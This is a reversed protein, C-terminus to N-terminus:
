NGWTKLTETTRVTAKALALSRPSLFLPWRQSDGTYVGWAYSGDELGDLEASTESIEKVIASPSHLDGGRAVVLLYTHAGRSPQWRFTIRPARGHHHFTRGPAPSVLLDEPPESECFLARPESFDGLRRQADRAAIRWLLRGPARPVLLTHTAELEASLIPQLFAPERAVQVAYGTAGEVEKWSLRAILGPCFLREDALPESPAPPDIMSEVPGIEGSMLEVVEGAKLPRVSGASALAAEGQLLAVEAGHGTRQLRLQVAADGRATLTSPGSPPLLIQLAPPAQGAVPAPLFARILGHELALVPL